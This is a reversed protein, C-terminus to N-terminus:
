QNIGCTVYLVVQGDNVTIEYSRQNDLYKFGNTRILGLEILDISHDDIIKLPHYAGFTGSGDKKRKQHKVHGNNKRANTVATHARAIAYEHYAMNVMTKIDTRNNKHRAFRGYLDLKGMGPYMKLMELTWNYTYRDAHIIKKIQESQEDTLYIELSKRSLHKMNHQINM